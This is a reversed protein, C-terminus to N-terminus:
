CHYLQPDSYKILSLKELRCHCWCLHCLLEVVLFCLRADRPQPLLKPHVLPSDIVGLLWEADHNGRRVHGTDEM